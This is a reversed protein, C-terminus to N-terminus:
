GSREGSVAVLSCRPESLRGVKQLSQLPMEKALSLPSSECASSPCFLQVKLGGLLAVLKSRTLRFCFCLVSPTPEIVSLYLTRRQALISQMVMWWAEPQDSDAVEAVCITSATWM